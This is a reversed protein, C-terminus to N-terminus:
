KKLLVIAKLIQQMDTLTLDISLDLESIFKAAEKRQKEANEKEAKKAIKAADLKSDYKLEKDKRKLAGVQELKELPFPGDIREDWLVEGSYGGSPHIEILQQEGENNVILLKIM